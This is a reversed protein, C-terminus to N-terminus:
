GTNVRFNLEPDYKWKRKNGDDYYRLIKLRYFVALTDSLMHLIVKWFNISTITSSNKFELEIPAEYIRSYRLRHAVALIEIDFAYDKVLLRPLVDELVKRRFFKMGVQTDKVTLGFLLRVLLRYGISLIKRQTPYNVKSAHHLKSGIIIDANYWEFYELLMSIGNPNLDMGADIFAVISGKAKAMGFRVAYGKGHNHQYGSVVVKPSKIKKANEFTDDVIGDVVVIIEYDYRLQSMVQIIKRIDQIITKEQKYAPVIVSLLNLKGM